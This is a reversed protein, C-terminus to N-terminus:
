ATRRMRAKWAAALGRALHSKGTGSPGYLVLPNFNLVTPPSEPRRDVPEALVSHVAVEVLRNEPGALFHGAPPWAAQTPLNWRGGRCPSTSLAMWWTPEMRNKSVPM